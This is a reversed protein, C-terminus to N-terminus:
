PAAFTVLLVVRDSAARNWAEHEVTDDFVLCRGAVWRCVEDGFSMGLDGEPVLLPLHCRLVGQMEGRHPYLHTGPRFWSFGANVLGPVAACAAATAPCRVRNNAEVDVASGGYLGFWKWGTEDYGDAVTTLSDPSDVFEASSLQQLEALVASCAAELAPVFAFRSPDHVAPM